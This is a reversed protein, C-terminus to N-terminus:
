STPFTYPAVLSPWLTRRRRLRLPQSLEEASSGEVAYLNKLKNWWEDEKQPNEEKFSM